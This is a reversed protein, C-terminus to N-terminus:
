FPPHIMVVAAMGAFMLFNSLFSRIGAGLLGLAPLGLKGFILVFNLLGNILVGASGVALAWFPATM